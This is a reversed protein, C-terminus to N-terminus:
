MNPPLHACSPNFNKGIIDKAFTTKGIQRPGGIFVMKENLDAIVAKNLYRNKLM